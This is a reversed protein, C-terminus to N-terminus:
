PYDVEVTPAYGACDVARFRSLEDFLAALAAVVTALAAAKGCACVM